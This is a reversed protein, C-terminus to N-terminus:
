VVPLVSESSSRTMHDDVGHNSCGFQVEYKPFFFGSGRL